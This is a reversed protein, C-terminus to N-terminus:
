FVMVSIPSAVPYLCSWSNQDDHRLSKLIAYSESDRAPLFSAAETRMQGADALRDISVAFSVKTADMGGYQIGFGRRPARVALRCAFAM